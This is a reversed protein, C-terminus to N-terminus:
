GGGGLLRGVVERGVLMVARVGAAVSLMVVDWSWLALVALSRAFWPSGPTPWEKRESM